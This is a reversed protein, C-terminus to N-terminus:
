RDCPWEAVAARVVSEVPLEDMHQPNAEAWDLFVAVLDQRTVEERPCALPEIGDGHVMAQHFHAAGAMYGYCFQTAEAHLPDAPDASCLEVLDSTTRVEFVETEVALAPAAAFWLAGLVAVERRM